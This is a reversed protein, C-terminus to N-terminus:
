HRGVSWNINVNYAKDYILLTRIQLGIFSGGEGYGFRYKIGM